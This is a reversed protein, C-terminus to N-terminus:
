PQSRGLPAGPKPGFPPGGLSRHIGRVLDRAPIEFFRYSFLSLAMTGVVATALFTASELWSIGLLKQLPPALLAVLFPHLLYASYSADGLAIVFRNRAPARTVDLLVVGLVILVAPGGWQIPRMWSSPDTRWTAALLVSGAGILAWPPIRKLWATVTPSQLATAILCGAGFEFIIPAGYFNFSTGRPVVNGICFVATMLALLLAIRFRRPALMSIVFLLYFMMEFNLTWGIFLVPSLMNRADPAPIFALSALVSQLDIRAAPFVWPHTFALAAAALTAVWYLPAIRAIRNIAFGAPTERAGAVYVMIFGSIVFFLDVGAAGVPLRPMGLGLSNVYEICHFVVVMYAAVARLGQLRGLM